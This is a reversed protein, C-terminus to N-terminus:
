PELWNERSTGWGRPIREKNAEAILRDLRQEARRPSKSTAPSRTHETRKSPSSRESIEMPPAKAPTGVAQQTQQILNWSLTPSVGAFGIKLSQQLRYRLCHSFCVLLDSVSVFCFHMVGFCASAFCPLYLLIGFCALAFRQYHLTARLVQIYSVFVCTGALSKSRTLPNENHCKTILDDMFSSRHCFLWGHCLDWLVKLFDVVKALDM